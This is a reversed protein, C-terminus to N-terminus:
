VSSAIENWRVITWTTLGNVTKPEFTFTIANSSVASYLTAGDYVQIKSNNIQIMVWEPHSLDDSPLRQWTTRLGIDFVVSVITTVQAMHAMHAVEDAYRFTSVVTGPPDNLDQSTGV